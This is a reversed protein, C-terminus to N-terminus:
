KGNEYAYSKKVVYRSLPLVLVEYGIKLLIYMVNGVLLTSLPLVGAFALPVFISSDVIEGVISSVISRVNYGKLTDGQKSKMYRFVRDNVFDGAYFAILSAITLRFTSGLVTEYAAQNQWFPSAPLRIAVFFLGATIFSAIFAMTATKRSWKYGYVESFVDSLIYTIPFVIVAATMSFGIVEIQKAGLINSVVLAMVYLTTLVLKLTSHKNKM